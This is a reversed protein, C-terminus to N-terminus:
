HISLRLLVVSVINWPADRITEQTRVSIATFTPLGTRSKQHSILFDDRSERPYPNQLHRHAFTVIIKRVEYGEQLKQLEGTM